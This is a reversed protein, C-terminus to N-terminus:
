LHRSWAAAATVVVNKVEVVEAEKHLCSIPGDVTAGAYVGSCSAARAAPMSEERVCRSGVSRVPVAAAAGAGKVALNLAHVPVNVRGSARSGPCRDSYSHALRMLSTYESTPAHSAGSPSSPRLLFRGVFFSKTRRVRM